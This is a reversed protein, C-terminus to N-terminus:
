EFEDNPDRYAQKIPTEEEDYEESNSGFIELIENKAKEQLSHFRAEKNSMKAREPEVLKMEEYGDEEKKGLRELVSKRM